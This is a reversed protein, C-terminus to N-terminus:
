KLNIYYQVIYQICPSLNNLNLMYNWFVYEILGVRVVYEGVVDVVGVVYEEVGVVVGVGAAYVVHVRVVEVGVGAAWPNFVMLLLCAAKNSVLLRRVDISHFVIALPELRWHKATDNVGRAYITEQERGFGPM